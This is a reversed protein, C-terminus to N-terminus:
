LGRQGNPIRWRPHAGYGRPTPTKAGAEEEVPAVPEVAPTADMVCRFGTDASTTAPTDSNRRAVRTFQALLNWAGGRLVRDGQIHKFNKLLWALPQGGSVSVPNRSNHSARYFDPDHKDLCWECVNGAMDYLGYGNAPYTGIPTTDNVNEDYNADDPTPEADGWPYKKGTLGGRAAYEWEAETPLRKGAWEAYAMAAYWSVWVVPHDAKGPPYDNGNWLKLYHGGYDYSRHFKHEINDKSWQPNADVFKKFQANTVEYIDMYFADLHITHVPQEDPWADHWTDTPHSGMQFQGAPILVMGEPPPTDAASEEAVAQGYSMATASLCLILTLFCFLCTRNKM